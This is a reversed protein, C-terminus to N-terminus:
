QLGHIDKEIEERYRGAIRQWSFDKAWERVEGRQLRPNRIKELFGDAQAHDKILWGTKGDLVADSLGDIDSALVPTGCSAAEIAVIGFGEPDGEIKRNPMVFIDASNYLLRLLGDEVRGLLKVKKQSGTKRIANELEKKLPGDGAILYIFNEDLKILVNEIFWGIGKRAVLRGATLIIKKDKLEMRITEQLKIRLQKRDTDLYYESINIGNPIVTCISPPIGRKECEKRTNRSVCIVRDYRSVLPPIIRQYLPNPFTIDLGHVTVFAKAKFLARLAIGLPALLSDCVYILDYRSGLNLVLSRLFAAPLFWILQLQNGGHLVTDIQYDPRLSDLLNKTYAEMGGISPPYKRSIFLIKKKQM